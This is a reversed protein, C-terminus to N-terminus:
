QVTQQNSLLFESVLITITINIEIIRVRYATTIIHVTKAFYRLIEYMVKRSVYM